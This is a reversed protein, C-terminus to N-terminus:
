PRKRLMLIGVIAIAIIIAITSALIYMDTPATTAVPSPTPTPAGEEAAMATQAHSSFYSESGGFTSVITYKGPIDPTFVYSYHGNIDSTVNEIHRYNGNPDITDISVTVGQANNPKTREHYLYEMWATMDNDSIAPTGRAGPSQDTVTGQIVVSGGLSIVTDPATVTTATQGKGFCYISNDMNDYNILYGDSIAMGNSLSTINWLGKGNDADYCYITWGRLLPQTHSHEGTTVYVKHDAIYTQAAPWNPYPGELEGPNLSSNWLLNGTAMEYCYLIGAYGASYLKGYATQGNLGYMDYQDQSASPGWVQEGTALSYGYWQRTEKLRMTFIGAQPDIPGMSITGNTIPAGTYNKMWMLSGRSEPNLNLSWITYAGVGYQFSSLGSVGILQNSLINNISGLNKPVTINWSYGNSGDITEGIPERFMWYFAEASQYASYPVGLNNNPFSLAVTSNWLALWGHAQDYVYILEEGNPGVTRTSAAFQAGSSPVNAINCIWKGTYADYMQWVPSNAPATFNYWSGNNRQYSYTTAKTQTYTSWLYSSAGHQNPSDYELIQGFSLVPYTYPIETAGIHAGTQSGIQIPGSGNNYWIQEGTTLDVCYFGYRPARPENYYLRGYMIIGATWMTEYASGTFYSYDDYPQGVIGGTTTPKTWVIHATAPARTANNFNYLPSGGALWNGSIESWDRNTAYIPRTWYDTPLPTSPFELIPDEQVVLTVPDSTSATLTDNIYAAYAATYGGPPPNVGTYTIGPFKAVFIYNGTQEPTYNTWGGGVPDSDFPGLTENTGDPRTVEVTFKFRDGYQGSATQPLTDLWFVILATQGVGIPNPAVAIYTWSAKTWPPTHANVSPLAILTASAILIMLCITLATKTKIRFIRM